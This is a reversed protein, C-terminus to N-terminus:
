ISVPCYYNSMSCVCLVTYYVYEIKVYGDFTLKELDTRITVDYHTPKVDEPLRFEDRPKAVTDASMNAIFPKTSCSRTSLPILYSPKTSHKWGQKIESHNWRAIDIGPGNYEGGSKRLSSHCLGRTNWSPHHSSCTSTRAQFSHVTLTTRRAFTRIMHLHATSSTFGCLHM